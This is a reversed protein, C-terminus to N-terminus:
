KKGRKSRSQRTPQVRGSSPARSSRATPRRPSAAGQRLGGPAAAPGYPGAAGGTGDADVNRPDPPPTANRDAANVRAYPDAAM